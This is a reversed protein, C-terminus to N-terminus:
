FSEMTSLAEGERTVTAKTSLSQDNDIKFLFGDETMEYYKLNSRCHEQTLKVAALATKLIDKGANRSIYLQTTM